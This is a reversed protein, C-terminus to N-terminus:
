ARLSAVAEIEVKVDRPLRAVQVTSRAPAATKDAFTQAYVENMAPFDNMDALFVTTKIVQDIGSGAESLIAKLNRLAMATQAKIDGEVVKGTAPDVPIQGSTFVLGNVAVAQNYPGIPAAAHDTLIIRRSM